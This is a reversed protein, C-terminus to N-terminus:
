LFRFCTFYNGEDMQCLYLKGWVAESWHLSTYYNFRWATGGRSAAPTLTLHRWKWRSTVPGTEGQPLAKIAIACRAGVILMDALTFLDTIPM